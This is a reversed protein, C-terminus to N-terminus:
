YPKVELTNDPVIILQDGITITKFKIGYAKLLNSSTLVEMPKGQAIIRGYALLIVKDAYLAAIQPDHLSMVVARVKGQEVLKRVTSLVLIKNAIDLHATPEDLVLIEAEQVLARAILVLQLQGGSVEAITREALEEIGLEQLISYAKKYESKGPLTLLSHHPTRGMLVYDIVRYAFISHHIQPVYAMKRARDRPKINYVNKGDIYVTGRPELLGLICKLLTTKGAGNPGLIITVEGESITLSINRLAIVEGKYKYTLNRVKVIPKSETMEM